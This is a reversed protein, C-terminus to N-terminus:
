SARSDVMAQCSERLQAVLLVGEGVPAPSKRTHGKVVTGRLLEGGGGGMHYNFM